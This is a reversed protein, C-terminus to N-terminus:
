ASAVISLWLSAMTKHGKSTPHIGDEALSQEGEILALRSFEQDFPILLANYKHALRHIVEIKPDLDERWKKMEPQVHLLFPECLVIKLNLQNTTLALLSDYREEFDETSTRDNDDYRRWTDNIGINITLTTPNLNLVDRQWRAELDVLRHGSTGVNIIPDKIKGSDAIEKVWGNGLPPYIERDCDTVSDGIFLTTM